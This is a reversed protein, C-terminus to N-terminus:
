EPHATVNLKGVVTGGGSFLTVTVVANAVPIRLGDVPLNPNFAGSTPLDIDLLNVLAPDTGDPRIAEDYDITLRGGTPAASYSALITDIRWRRNATAPFQVSAM